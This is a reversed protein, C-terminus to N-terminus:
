TLKTSVPFDNCETEDRENSVQNKRKTSIYKTSSVRSSDFPTKEYQKANEDRGLRFYIKTCRSAMSILCHVPGKEYISTM